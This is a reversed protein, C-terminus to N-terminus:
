AQDERSPPNLGCITIVGNHDNVLWDNPLELLYNSGVRKATIEIRVEEFGEEMHYFPRYISTKIM